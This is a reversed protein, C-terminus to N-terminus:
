GSAGASRLPGSALARVRAVLYKAYEGVLLNASGPSRWWADQKVHKPFVPHPVITVRPMRRRFELLSRPMHYAATVLRVSAFGNRRVWRASELANGHTTEAQYGLTVCCALWDPAQQSVRLLESVDVGKYVGSVFLKDARGSELLRLGTGVRGTGGTLVVIADTRTAPDAVRDPLSAVFGVFGATLGALLVGAALVGALLLRRATRGTPRGPDPDDDSGAGRQDDHLTGAMIERKGTPTERHRIRGL